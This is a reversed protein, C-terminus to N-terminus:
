PGDLKTWRRGDWAWLDNLGTVPLRNSGGFSELGTVGGFLLLQGTTEDFAFSARARASPGTVTLKRWTTGDFEWTDALLEGPGFRSLYRLGGFVVLRRRIPDFAAAADTRALEAPAERATLGDRGVTLVSARDPMREGGGIVLLTDNPAWALAHGVRHSPLSPGKVWTEGSWNWLGGLELPQWSGGLVSLAGTEPHWARAPGSYFTPLTSATTSLQEGNWELVQNSVFAVVRARRKDWTVLSREVRPGPLLLGSWRGNRFQWLEPEARACMNRTDAETCGGFLMVGNEGAPALATGDIRPAPRAAALTTAVPRVPLPTGNKPPPSGWAIAATLLLLPSLKM